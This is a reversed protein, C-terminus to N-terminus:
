VGPARFFEVRKAADDDFEIAMAVADTRPLPYYWTSAQWFAPAKGGSKVSGRMAASRPPGFVSAVAAKSNGVIAEALMPLSEEATPKGSLRKSRRRVSAGREKGVGQRGVTKMLSEFFPRRAILLATVMGALSAAMWLALQTFESVGGASGDDPHAPHKGSKRPRRKPHLPEM